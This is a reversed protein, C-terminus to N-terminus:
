SSVTLHLLVTNNQSANRATGDFESYAIFQLALRVHCQTLPSDPLGSPAYGIEAIWGKSNPSGELTELRLPDDSGSVEFYQIGTMLAAGWFWSVDSRFVTLDDSSKTGFVAHSANLSQSERLVLMHVALTSSIVREPHATWHWTGDAGIDTYSDDGFGSIATPRVNVHLGYAGLTVRDQGELFERELTLRGYAVGGMGDSGGPVQMGAVRQVDRRLGGYAAIESFLSDDWMPDYKAIDFVPSNTDDITATVTASSYRSNAFAWAPTAMWLNAIPWSDDLALVFPPNYLDLPSLAQLQYRSLNSEGASPVARANDPLLLVGVFTAFAL